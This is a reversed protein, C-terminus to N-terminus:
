DYRHITLFWLAGWRAKAKDEEDSRALKKLAENERNAKGEGKEHIWTDFFPLPFPPPPLLDLM